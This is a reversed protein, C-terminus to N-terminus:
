SRAIQVKPLIPEHCRFLGSRRHQIRLRRRAREALKEAAVYGGRAGDAGAAAAASREGLQAEIAAVHSADQAAGAAVRHQHAERRRGAAQPEFHLAEAAESKRSRLPTEHMGVIGATEGV